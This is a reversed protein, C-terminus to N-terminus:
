QPFVHQRVTQLENVTIHRSVRAIQQTPTARQCCLNLRLVYRLNPACPCLVLPTRLLAKDGAPVLHLAACRNAVQAVGRKM